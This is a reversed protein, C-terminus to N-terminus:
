RRAKKKQLSEAFSLWHQWIIEGDDLEAEKVVIEYDSEMWVQVADEVTLQRQPHVVLTHGEADFYTQVSKYPELESIQAEAFKWRPREDFNCWAEAKRIKM